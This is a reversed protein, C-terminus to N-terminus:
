LPGVLPVLVLVPSWVLGGRTAIEGEIDVRFDAIRLTWEELFLKIELRALHSGLCRHPGSGFVLHTSLPRDFDVKFADDVARDDLGYIHALFVLRDGTKFPAGPIGARTIGWDGCDQPTFFIDRGWNFRETVARQPCCHVEPGQFRDFDVVLQPSIHEPVTAQM